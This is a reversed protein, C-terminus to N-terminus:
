GEARIASAIEEGLREERRQIDVVRVDFLLTKGALPHNLDLVIVEPKIEAVYPFVVRGDPATTELKAGVRQAEAPVRDRRVEFLGEPHTEGYGDVPAVRVRRTAGLTMGDLGAELGRLIENQGHTYVLPAEGVTSEIVQEDDLRIIYEVSVVDGQSVQM